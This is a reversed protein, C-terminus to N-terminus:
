VLLEEHSFGGLMQLELSKLRQCFQHARLPSGSEAEALEAKNPSSYFMIAASWIELQNKLTGSGSYSGSGDDGSGPFPHFCGGLGGPEIECLTDQGKARWCSYFM